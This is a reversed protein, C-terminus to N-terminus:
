EDVDWVFVQSVGPVHVGSEKTARHHVILRPYTQGLVYVKEGVCICSSATASSPIEVTQVDGTRPDYRHVKRHISGAWVFGDDDKSM